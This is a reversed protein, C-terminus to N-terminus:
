KSPDSCVIKPGLVEDFRWLVVGAVYGHKPVHNTSLALSTSLFAPQNYAYNIEQNSYFQSNNEISKSGVVSRNNLPIRNGNLYIDHQETISPNNEWNFRNELWQSPTTESHESQNYSSKTISSRHVPNSRTANRAIRCSTVDSISNPSRIPSRYKYFVLPNIQNCPQSESAFEASFSNPDLLRFQPDATSSRQANPSADNSNTLQQSFLLVNEYKSENNPLFEHVDCTPHACPLSNRRRVDSLSKGNLDLLLARKTDSLSKPGTLSIEQVFTMESQYPEANIVTM